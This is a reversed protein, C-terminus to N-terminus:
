NLTRFEATQFLSQCFASWALADPDNSSRGQGDGRREAAREALRERPRRQRPADGSGASGATEKGGDAVLAKKFDDLFEKSATVEAGSPARGLTLEFARRIREGEANRSDPVDHVLRAAFADAAGVVGPDNMLYLAQTAVNTEDRDGVVFSPEAFDFVGLSDPVRDRVIPMYVSRLPRNDTLLQQLLRNNDGRLGGEAFNIVSGSPPTRDLTGAAALMADRIAEAELRRNPMRWLWVIDPDKEANKDDHASDLRYTRSLVLERVLAKTSWTGEVLRVALWDLLEPHTPPVGSHGFNDPTPVLGKGFLHLWVRNAWVRATLPNSPSAIWDALERRGSADSPMSPSAEGSIVQVFGRPVRELPKDIEGRQLIPAELIKQGDLAGMTVRNEITPRGNEDFRELISELTRVQARQQAIRFNNVQERPKGEAAKMAEDAEATLREQGREILTRVQQSMTPGAVVDAEDPLAILSSARRNGPSQVTGFQTATSAFIGAMAYYDAQPIPDFKHDHCRACAVTLGLMGQTVTDIQEDVVDAYFQRPNQQNHSKPGIALYATAVLNEARDNPNAAPLLDGAIQERLFIDFPKDANFSAIVYDRYRWAHPYLVNNEKGSSEAYRAVDLWHRGWREGFAPSALLRDVVREYATPTKDKEFAEIEEPTPPLGTLDFTVRRIWTRKSADGVPKLDHAEMSALVFRDVDGFSWTANAPSPVKPKVPAKFSWFDRAIEIDWSKGALAPGESDIAGTTVVRPDPAGMRVWEELAAIDEDKLKRKPPMALDEDAWRVAQILVSKDPDGPVISPGSAGGTMWGDRTDLVLDGRIREAEASHCSYCNAVLIPRIKKEFFQRERESIPADGSAGSMMGDGDDQMESQMADDLPTSASSSAAFAIAMAVAAVLTGGVLLPACLEVFWTRLPRAIARSESTPPMPANTTM